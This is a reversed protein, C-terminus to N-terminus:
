SVVSISRSTSGVTGRRRNAGVMLLFDYIFCYRGCLIVFTEHKRSSLKIRAFSHAHMVYVSRGRIVHWTGLLGSLRPTSQEFLICGSVKAVCTIIDLM